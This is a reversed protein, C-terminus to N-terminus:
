KKNKPSHSEDEEEDDYEQDYYSEFEDVDNDM